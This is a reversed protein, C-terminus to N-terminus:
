KIITPPQHFQLNLSVTAFALLLVVAPASLDPLHSLTVCVFLWATYHVKVLKESNGRWKSAVSSASINFFTTKCETAVARALLTKGTGPPGYLLIGQLRTPDSM